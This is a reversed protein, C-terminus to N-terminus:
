LLITTLEIMQPWKGLMSLYGREMGIMGSTTYRIDDAEYIRVDDAGDGAVEVGM